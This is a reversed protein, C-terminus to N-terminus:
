GKNVQEQTGFEEKCIVCPLKSDDRKNSKDKMVKWDTETLSQEPAEILGMKQAKLVILFYLM